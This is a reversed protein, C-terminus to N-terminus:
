GVGDVGVQLEQITGRDLLVEVCAGGGGGGGGRGAGGKSSSRSGELVVRMSRAVQGLSTRELRAKVFRASAEERPFDLQVQLVRPLHPPRATCATRLAVCRTPRACPACPLPPPPPAGPWAHALLRGTGRAEEGDHRAHLHEQRRQHDGQHAARGAHREHLGRGCLPVDQADDAHGARRRAASPPPFCPPLPPPSPRYPSTIRRRCTGCCSPPSPPPACAPLRAPMARVSARHAM